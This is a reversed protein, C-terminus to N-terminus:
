SLNHFWKMKKKQTFGFVNAEVRVIALTAPLTHCDARFSDEYFHPVGPVRVHMDTVRLSAVAALFTHPCAFMGRNFVGIHWLRCLLGPLM